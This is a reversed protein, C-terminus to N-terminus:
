KKTKKLNKEENKKEKNAENKETESPEDKTNELETIREQLETIRNKLMTNEEELAEYDRGTSKGLFQNIFVLADQPREEQEFLEVLARTLTEVAGNDELYSKFGSKKEEITDTM